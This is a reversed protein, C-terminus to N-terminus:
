GESRKGFVAEFLRYTWAPRSRGEDQWGMLLDVTYALEQRRKKQWQADHALAAAHGDARFGVRRATMVSRRLHYDSTVVLVRKGKAGGLLRATFRLNEMTDQARDELMVAEQPVGARLLLQAMVAAETIRSGPAAGGSVVIKKSLGRAYAEAGAQVRLRLEEAPQGNQLEYGLVVIADYICGRNM